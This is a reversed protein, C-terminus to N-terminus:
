TLKWVSRQSIEEILKYLDTAASCVFKVTIWDDTHDRGHVEIQFGNQCVNINIDGDVTTFMDLLSIVKM